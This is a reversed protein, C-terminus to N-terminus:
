EGDLTDRLGLATMHKELLKRSEIVNFQVYGMSTQKAFRLEGTEAAALGSTCAIVLALPLVGTRHNM